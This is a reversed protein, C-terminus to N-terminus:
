IYIMRTKKKGSNFGFKVLQDLEFLTLFLKSKGVIIKIFQLNHVTIDGSAVYFIYCLLFKLELLCFTM